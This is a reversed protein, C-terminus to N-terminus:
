ARNEQIGHKKEEGCRRLQDLVFQGESYTLFISNVQGHPSLSYGQKLQVVYEKGGKITGKGDPLEFDKTKKKLKRIFAIVEEDYLDGCIDIKM